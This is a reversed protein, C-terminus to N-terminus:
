LAFILVKVNRISVRENDGSIISFADGLLEDCDVRKIQSKQSKFYKFEININVGKNKKYYGLDSMLWM